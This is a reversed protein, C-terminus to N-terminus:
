RGGSEYMRKSFLSLWHGRSWGCVAVGVDHSCRVVSVCYVCTTSFAGMSFIQAQAHNRTICPHM